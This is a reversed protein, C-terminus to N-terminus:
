SQLRMPLLQVRKELWRTSFANHNNVLMKNGTAFTIHCWLGAWGRYTAIYILVSGLTGNSFTPSRQWMSNGGGGGGGTHEPDAM